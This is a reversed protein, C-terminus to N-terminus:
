SVRPMTRSKHCSQPKAKKFSLIKVTILRFVINESKQCLDCVIAITFCYCTSSATFFLEVLQAYNNQLVVQM